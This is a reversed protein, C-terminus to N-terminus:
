ITLIPTYQKALECCVGFEKRIKDMLPKVAIAETEFHGACVLAMGYEEADLFSHHSGDGTLLVDCGMDRAIDLYDSGSGACVAIKQVFDTGKNYRAVANLSNKVEQVFQEISIKNSLTGINLCLGACRIFDNLGIRRCLIDNVGDAAKDYNTHACIISLKNEVLKYVLSDKTVTSVPKFIVPHHTVILDAGYTVAQLIVDSTIDLSFLIKDVEKDKDGVLFGANDWEEAESFPAIKDIFNYIDRVTAM